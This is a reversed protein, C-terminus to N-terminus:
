NVLHGALAVLLESTFLLGYYDIMLCLSCPFVVLHTVLWTVSNIRGRSPILRPFPSIFSLVLM